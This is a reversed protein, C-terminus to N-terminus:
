SVMYRALYKRPLFTERIERIKATVRFIIRPTLNLNTGIKNKTDNISKNSVFAFTVFM